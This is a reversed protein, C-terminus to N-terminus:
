VGEVDQSKPDRNKYTTNKCPRLKYYKKEIVIFENSVVDEGLQIEKNQDMAQHAPNWQWM